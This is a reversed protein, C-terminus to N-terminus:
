DPAGLQVTVSDSVSGVPMEFDIALADQVHLTVDTGILKKSRSKEM